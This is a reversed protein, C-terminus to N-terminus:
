QAASFVTSPSLTKKTQTQVADESIIKTVTLNCLTKMHKKSM